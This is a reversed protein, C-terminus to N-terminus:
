GEEIFKKFKEFAKEKTKNTKGNISFTLNKKFLKAIESRVKEYAYAKGNAYSKLKKQMREGVDAAKDKQGGGTVNYLKVNKQNKYFDIYHKEWKDLENVAAKKIVFVRWGNPNQLDYLKHKQLSKDIHTEKNVVTLHAAIRQLLNKAQGIYVCMEKNENTRVFQYIGSEQTIRPNQRLVKKENARQIAWRQRDDM